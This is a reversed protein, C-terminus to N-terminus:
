QAGRRRKDAGKNGGGEAKLVHTGLQREFALAQRAEALERKKAKDLEQELKSFASRARPRRSRKRRPRWSRVFCAVLVLVLPLPLLQRRGRRPKPRQSRSAPLLRRGYTGICATAPAKRKKAEPAPQGRSTETGAGLCAPARSIKAAVLNSESVYTKLDVVGHGQALRRAVVAEGETLVPDSMAEKSPVGWRVPCRWPAGPPPAVLLFEEKWAKTSNPLGTFLAPVSERGRFSYWGKGKPLPSLAFFHRFVPLSPQSPAFGYHTLASSVFPHLPLRMGASFAQAYVPIPVAASAGRGGGGGRPASPPSCAPQNPGAPLLAFNDPITYTSRLGAISEPTRLTSLFQEPVPWSLATGIGGDDDHVRRGAVAGGAGGSPPRSQKKAPKVDEVPGGYPNYDRHWHEVVSPKIDGEDDDSDDFYPRPDHDYYSPAYHHSSSSSSNFWAM